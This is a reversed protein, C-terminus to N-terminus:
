GIRELFENIRRRNREIQLIARGMVEVVQPVVANGLSRLRDVRSSAMKENCEQTRIRELMRQQLDQTEKFPKACIRKWLNCLKKDEKIRRGLKWREHTRLCSMEYMFDDCCKSEHGYSASENKCQDGWMKRLISRRITDIETIAKQYDSNEYGFDKITEDLTSSFRAVVRGVPPEPLWRCSGRSQKQRQGDQLGQVYIGETDAVDQSKRGIRATQQKTGKKEMRMSDNHAWIWVRDRRHPADVACAPIIFTQTEYGQDELDSLVKDLELGDNLTCFGYVNEFIVWKPQLERIIRLAEPWLWRDDQSGRRKGAVSAPQCPVGGCILDVSELNHKGIKKIDGYKKVTPWHKSLVKNCFPDIESQWKCTMGANEFGLDFGGIGSFLSGFTFKDHSDILM